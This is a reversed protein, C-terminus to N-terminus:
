LRSRIFNLYAELSDTDRTGYSAERNEWKKGEVNERAMFHKPTSFKRRDQVAMKLLFHAYTLLNQEIFIDAVKIVMNDNDVFFRIESLNDLITFILDNIEKERESEEEIKKITTTQFKSSKRSKTKSTLPSTMRRRIEDGDENHDSDSDITLRDLFNLFNSSTNTINLEDNQPIQNQTKNYNNAYHYDDMEEENVYSDNNNDNDNNNSNDNNDDIQNDNKYDEDDNNENRNTNNYNRRGNDYERSKLKSLSNILIKWNEMNSFIQKAENKSLKSFSIFYKVLNENENLESLANLIKKIQESTLPNSRLFYSPSCGILRNILKNNNSNIVDTLLKQRLMVDLLSWRKVAVIGEFLDVAQEFYELSDEGIVSKSKLINKIEKKRIEDDIDEYYYDDDYYNDYDYINNDNHNNNDDNSDNNSNNNSNNNYIDNYDEKEHGNNNNDIEIDDNHNDNKNDVSSLSLIALLLKQYNYDPHPFGCVSITDFIAVADRLNDRRYQMIGEADMKYVNNNNKNNNKNDYDNSNNPNYNILHIDEPSGFERWPGYTANRVTLAFGKQLTKEIAFNSYKRKWYDEDVNNGLTGSTHNNNRINHSFDVALTYLDYENRNNLRNRIKKRIKNRKEKDKNKMYERRDNYDNDNDVDIDKFIMAHILLLYSTANPREVIGPMIITEKGKEVDFYNKQRNLKVNYNMLCIIYHLDDINGSHFCAQLAFNYHMTYPVGCWFLSKHIHTLQFIAKESKEQPSKTFNSRLKPVNKTDLLNNTLITPINPVKDATAISYLLLNNHFVILKVTDPHFYRLLFDKIEEVDDENRKQRYCVHYFDGLLRMWINQIASDTIGIINYKGNKQTKKLQWSKLIVEPPGGTLKITNQVASNINNEFLQILFEKNQTRSLCSIACSLNVLTKLENKENMEKINKVLYIDTEIEDLHTLVTKKPSEQSSMFKCVNQFPVKEKNFILPKKRRYNHLRIDNLGLIERYIGSKPDIGCKAMEILIMQTM